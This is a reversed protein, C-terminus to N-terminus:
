AKTSVSLCSYLNRNGGLGHMKLVSLNIIVTILSNLQNGPLLSFFSMLSCCENVHITIFVSIFLCLFIIYSLLSSFNKGWLLYKRSNVSKSIKRKTDGFLRTPLYVLFIQQKYFAKKLVRCNANCWKFKKIFVCVCVSISLSLSLPQPKVINLWKGLLLLFSFQSTLDILVRWWSEAHRYHCLVQCM